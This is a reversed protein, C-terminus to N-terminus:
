HTGKPSDWFFLSMSMKLFVLHFSTDAGKYTQDYLDVIFIDYASFYGLSFRNYPHAWVMGEVGTLSFIEM